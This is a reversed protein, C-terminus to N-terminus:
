RSRVEISNFKKHIPRETESPATQQVNGSITSGRLLEARNKEIAQRRKLIRESQCKNQLDDITNSDQKSKIRRHAKERKARHEARVVEYTKGTFPEEITRM